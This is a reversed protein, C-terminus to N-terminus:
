RLLNFFLTVREYDIESGPPGCKPVGKAPGAIAELDVRTMGPHLHLDYSLTTGDGSSHLRQMGVLTVIKVQRQSTSAALRPRVTLINHSPPLHITINQQSILSSPPIDLCFDSQLSLSAHTLVRVNRILAMRPDSKYNAPLGRFGTSTLGQGSRRLLSDMPSSGFHPHHLVHASASSLHRAVDSPVGFSANPPNQSTPITPATAKTVSGLLGQASMSSNQQKESGSPTNTTSSRASDLHGGLSWGRPSRSIEQGALGAGAIDQRHGLSQNKSTVDPPQGEIKSLTDSSQGPMKLTLRQAVPPVATGVKLKICSMDPAGDVELPNPVLKKAEAVRRHFHDELVGALISIDSDDENYERANRWVYSVEEEFSQWTPYATTRSSNKRSDTGRVRKQISRLSVPHQIIEYYDRYLNRDPKGIFPYSVDQGDSDKLRTLESMIKDQASQLTDGEFDEEPEAQSEPTRDAEELSESDLHSSARNSERPSMLDDDSVKRRKTRRFKMDPSATAAARRKSTM